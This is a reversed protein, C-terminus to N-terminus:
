IEEIGSGRSVLDDDKHIPSQQQLKRELTSSASYQRQQSGRKSFDDNSDQKSELSAKKQQSNFPITDDNTNVESGLVPLNASAVKQSTNEYRYIDLFEFQPIM